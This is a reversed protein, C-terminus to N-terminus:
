LSETQALAKKAQREAYHARDKTYVPLSDDCDVFYLSIDVTACLDQLRAAEHESTKSELLEVSRLNRFDNGASKLNVLLGRFNHM